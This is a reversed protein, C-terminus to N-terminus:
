SDMIMIVPVTKIREDRTPYRYIGIQRVVKGKPVKVIEEDYYYKKDDNVILYVTGLYLDYESKGKVLAADNALVQFVKFSKGEIIDGPEEFYHLGDMDEPEPEPEKEIKAEVKQETQTKSDEKNAVKDYIFSVIIGFVIGALFIMWKKM